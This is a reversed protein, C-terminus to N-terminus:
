EDETVSQNILVDLIKKLDYSDLNKALKVVIQFREADRVLRAYEYRPVKMMVVPQNNLCNENM